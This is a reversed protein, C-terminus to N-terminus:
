VLRTSWMVIAADWSLGKNAQGHPERICLKNDRVCLAGLLTLRDDSVEPYEEHDSESWKAVKDLHSAVYDPVPAGENMNTAFVFNGDSYSVKWSQKKKTEQKTETKIKVLVVQRNRKVIRRYQPTSSM